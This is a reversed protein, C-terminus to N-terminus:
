QRGTLVDTKVDFYTSIQYNAGTMLSSQDEFQHTALASICLNQQPLGVAAAAAAAAASFLAVFDFFSSIRPPFFFM